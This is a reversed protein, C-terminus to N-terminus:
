IPSPLQCAWWRYRSMTRGEAVSLSCNDDWNSELISCESPICWHIKFVSESILSYCHFTVSKGM